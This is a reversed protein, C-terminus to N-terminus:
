TYRMVTQSDVKLCGVRSSWCESNNACKKNVIVSAGTSDMIHLTYCFNNGKPCPIDIAYQNCVHNDSVNICTYCILPLETENDEIQVAFSLNKISQIVFVCSIIFGCPGNVM